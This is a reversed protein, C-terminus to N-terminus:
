GTRRSLRLRGHTAFKDRPPLVQKATFSNESDWMSLPEIYAAEAGCLCRNGKTVSAMVMGGKM